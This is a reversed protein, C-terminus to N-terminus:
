LPSRVGLNRDFVEGYNGVSRIVNAAWTNSLGIQEGFDGSTGVLRMVAPKQSRMAQGITKSSVGLEEANLMAFHVWRVLEIWGLDSQRVVPGLPEKSVVDPLIVHDRPKALRLRLAYLQSLDSTLASCLGAEYAKIAEDTSTVIAPQMALNNAASF